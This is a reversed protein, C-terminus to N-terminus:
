HMYFIKFYFFTVFFTWLLVAARPWAHTLQGIVPFQTNLLPAKFFCSSLSLTEPLTFICHQQCFSNKKLMLYHLGTTITSWFLIIVGLILM